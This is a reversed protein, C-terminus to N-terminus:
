ASVLGAVPLRARVAFGGGREPGTHLEGGFLGVRERISVLQPDSGAGGLTREAGDDLIELELARDGYVVRVTAATARAGHAAARLSEEVVRFAVLDLGPSLAIPDGAVELTTRLGGVDAAHVLDPIRAVGPQPALTETDEERRLVGLLRRMEALAERGTLEIDGLTSGAATPNRHVVHRVAGAQVVMSSVAHTVVDHLEAAIRRREAAVAERARDEREAELRRTRERLARNLLRRNRIARGITVAAGVFMTVFVLDTPSTDSRNFVADGAFCLWSLLGAVVAVRLECYAGVSFLLLLYGVFAPDAGDIVLGGFIDQLAITVGAVVTATAPARRRYAVTASVIALGVITAGPSGFGYGIALELMSSVFILVGLAIDKHFPDVRALWEWFPRPWLRLPRVTTASM